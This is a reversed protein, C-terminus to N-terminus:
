PRATWSAYTVSLAGMPLVFPASMDAEGDGRGGETTTLLSRAAPQTKASSSARSSMEAACVGASRAAMTSLRAAPIGM